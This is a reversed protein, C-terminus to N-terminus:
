QKAAAMGRLVRETIDHKADMYVAEQVIMDYKEAKALARVVRNAQELLKQLEENQRLSLDEQFERQKRELDQRLQVIGRERQLRASEALTLRDKDYRTRAEREKEALQRLVAERQAFEAKLKTEAAKALASERIIRDTNVFGVKFEAWAATSVCLALALSLARAHLSLNM